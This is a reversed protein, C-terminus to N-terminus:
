MFYSGNFSNNSCVFALDIQMSNSISEGNLNYFSLEGSTEIDVVVPLYTRFRSALPIESSLQGDKITM